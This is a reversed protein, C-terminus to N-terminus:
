YNLLIFEDGGAAAEKYLRMAESYISQGEREGPSPVTIVKPAQFYFANGSGLTGFTGRLRSTVAGAGKALHARADETVAEPDMTGTMARGTVEAYAWGTLDHPDPRMAASSGLDFSVESILADYGDDIDFASAGLFRPPDAEPGVQAAFMPSTDPDSSVWGAEMTVALMAPKGTPFTLVGTGRCGRFRIRNGDEYYTISLSPIDFAVPAQVSTIKNSADVQVTEGSSFHGFGPIREVLLIGDTGFTGPVEVVVGKAGSTQGVVVDGVSITGSATGNLYITPKDYRYYARGALVAATPSIVSGGSFTLADTNTFAATSTQRVLVTIESGESVSGIAVGTAGSTAQTVTEGHLVSTGSTWTLPITLLLARGKNGTGNYPSTASATNGIERMGMARMLLGYPPSTTLGASAGALEMSFSLQAKKTGELPPRPSLSSDTNDREVHGFDPTWQPDIVTILDSATEGGVVVGEQDERQIAIQKFRHLM